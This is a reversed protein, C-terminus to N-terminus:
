TANIRLIRNKYRFCLLLCSDGGGGHFVHTNQGKQIEMRAILLTFSSVYHQYCYYKQYKVSVADLLLEIGAPTAPPAAAPTRMTTSVTMITTAAKHHTSRMCVYM